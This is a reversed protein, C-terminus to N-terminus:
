ATIRTPSLLFPSPFRAARAAPGGGRRLPREGDHPSVPRAAAAVGGRPQEEARRHWSPMASGLFYRSTCAAQTTYLAINIGATASREARCSRHPRRAAVDAGAEATHRREDLLSQGGEPGAIPAGSRADCATPYM